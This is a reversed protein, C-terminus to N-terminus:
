AHSIRRRALYEDVATRLTESVTTHDEAALSELEQLTTVPIRVSTARAEVRPAGARPRGRAVTAPGVVDYDGAEVASALEEYDKEDRPIRKAM